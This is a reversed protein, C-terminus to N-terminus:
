GELEGPARAPTTVVATLLGFLLGLLMDGAPFYDTHVARAQEGDSGAIM